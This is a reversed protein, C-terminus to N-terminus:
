DRNQRRLVWLQFRPGLFIIYLGALAGYYIGGHPVHFLQIILAVAIAIGFIPAMRLLRWTLPLNRSSVMVPRGLLTGGVRTRLSLALVLCMAVVPLGLWGREAPFLDNAASYLFAVLGSIIWMWRSGSASKIVQEKGEHVARLAAAAEAPTPENM